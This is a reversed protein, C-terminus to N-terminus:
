GTYLIGVRIWHIIYGSKNPTYIFLIRSKDVRESGALDALNLKGVRISGDQLKQTVTVTLLTHSRSSVENMDTKTVTRNAEGIAILQVVDEPASVYEEVLGIIRVAGRQTERIKLGEGSDTPNLM